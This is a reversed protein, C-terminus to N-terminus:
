TPFFANELPRIEAIREFDRDRHLLLANAEMATCAICCDVPSNVTIGAKRLDFYIRAAHRWTDDTTELYYQTALYADLRQWEPDDRAGQLLELQIFRSFVVIDSDTQEVFRKTVDGVKDKLVEIWVSTDVLIM